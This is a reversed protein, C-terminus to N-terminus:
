RDEPLPDADPRPNSALRASVAISRSSYGDVIREWTPEAVPFRVYGRPEMCRRMRSQSARRAIPGAVLAGIAAGVLGFQPNYDAEAADVAEPGQWAIFTPVMINAGSVPLFRYCDAFDIYAQEFSTEARWFYFFKWGDEVVQPDRGGTIVPVEVTAPDPIATVEQAAGADSLVLGAVCAALTLRM